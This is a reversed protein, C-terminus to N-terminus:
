IEKGKQKLLFSDFIDGASVGISITRIQHGENPFVTVTMINKEIRISICNDEYKQGNDIINETGNIAYVWFSEYNYNMFIYSKGAQPVEINNKNNWIMPDWDGDKDTLLFFSSYKNNFPFGIEWISIISYELNYKYM